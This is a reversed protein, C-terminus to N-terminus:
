IHIRTYIYIYIYICVYMYLIVKCLMIYMIYNNTNISACRGIVHGKSALRAQVADLIYVRRSVISYCLLM